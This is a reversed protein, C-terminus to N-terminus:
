CAYVLYHSVRKHAPDRGGCHTRERITTNALLSWRPRRRRLCTCPNASAGVVGGHLAGLLLSLPLSLLQICTSTFFLLSHHTTLLSHHTTPPSHHAATPLSGNPTLVSLPSHRTASRHCRPSRSWAASYSRRARTARAAGTSPLLCAGCLFRALLCAGCPHQTPPVRRVSGVGEAKMTCLEAKQEANERELAEITAVFQHERQKHLAREELLKASM